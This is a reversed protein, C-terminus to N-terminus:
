VPEVGDLDDQGLEQGTRRNSQGVGDDVNKAQDLQGAMDHEAEEQCASAERENGDEQGGQADVAAPCRKRNGDQGDQGSQRSRHGGNNCCDHEDDKLIDDLTGSLSDVNHRIQAGLHEGEHPDSGSTSKQPPQDM